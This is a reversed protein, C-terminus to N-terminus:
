SSYQRPNPYVGWEKKVTGNLTQKWISMPTGELGSDDFRWLELKGSGPSVTFGFSLNVWNTDAFLIPAPLCLGRNQMARVIHSHYDIESKTEQTTVLLLTKLCALLDAATLMKYRGMKAAPGQFHGMLKNRFTSDIEEISQFVTEVHEKLRDEPFLPLCRYFIADISDAFQRLPGEKQIWREYSLTKLLYERFEPPQMAHPFTRFLTKFYAKYGQPLTLSIEDILRDMMRFDLVLSFLFREAPLIWRDRVWTYTYTEEKWAQCFPDLGPKFLFAHTPSFALLAKQPNQIFEQQLSRPMEKMIDILFVLLEVENEIWRAKEELKRHTGYYCSVLTTMTGGSIYSWPKRHVRSLNELPKSVLPERYARALREFASELFEPRRLHLFLTTILRSIKSEIGKVQPLHAIEVETAVFFSTLAQLFESPTSINTWLSPNTRGHKYILRFGAPSDDYPSPGVDHMQADYVEQFYEKFKDVYFNLLIPLFSILQRAMEHREDREITLRHYEFKRTQYEANLWGLESESGARGVRGELSKLAAYVLDLRNQYSEIEKELEHVEEQIAQHLCQGIGQEEQPDLGLSAALNWKAFDAKSESLSALTFEWAKLLANDVIAKFASKAEEYSKLYRLAAISKGEKTYPVQIIFDGMVGERPRSRYEEVDEYTIEYYHLLISSLIQDPTLVIFPDENSLYPNTRLLKECQKQKSEGEDDLLGAQTLAAILGPSFSLTYCPDSGLTSLLFPRHLDGMGWSVSLPVAYANGEFVRFLKGSGLLQVMDALFQHPQQQLIAIAPATAFCSGVNQRLKTLLAALAAQKAHADTLLVDDSLQLTKRIIVDAIHLGVPKAIKKIEATLREDTYLAQLQALLEKRRVDDKYRKPGLSYLKEQLIHIARLIINKQIIGKEDILLQALERGLQANRFCWSEQIMTQDFALSTEFWEESLLRELPDESDSKTQEEIKEYIFPYFREDDFSRPDLGVRSEHM